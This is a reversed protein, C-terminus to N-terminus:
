TRTDVFKLLNIRLLVTWIVLAILSHFITKIHSQLSYGYLLCETQKQQWFAYNNYERQREPLLWRWTAEVCQGIVCTSTYVRVKMDHTPILQFATIHKTKFRQKCTRMFSALGLPFRKFVYSMKNLESSGSPLLKYLGIVYWDASQRAIPPSLKASNLVTFYMYSQILILLFMLKKQFLYKWIRSNWTNIISMVLWFKIRCLVGYAWV